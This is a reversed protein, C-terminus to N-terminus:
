GELKRYRLDCHPGITQIKQKTLSWSQIGVIKWIEVVQGGFHVTRIRKPVECTTFGFPKERQREIGPGGFDTSRQWTDKWISLGSRKLVKHIVFGFSEGKRRSPHPNFRTCRRQIQRSVSRSALDSPESGGEQEKIWRNELWRVGSGITQVGKPIEHIPSERHLMEVVERQEL